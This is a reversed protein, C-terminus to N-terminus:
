RSHIAAGVMKTLFWGKFDIGWVQNALEAPTLPWLQALGRRHLRRRRVLGHRDLMRPLRAAAPWEQQRRYKELWAKLKKRGVDSAEGAACSRWSVGKMSRMPIIIRRGVAIRSGVRGKRCTVISTITAPRASVGYFRCLEAMSLEGKLCEAIFKMRENMVHTEKWAV